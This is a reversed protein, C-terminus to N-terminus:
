KGKIIQKIDQIANEIIDKMSRFLRVDPYGISDENWDGDKFNYNKTYDRKINSINDLDPEVCIKLEVTDGDQMKCNNLFTNATVMSGEPPIRYSDECIYINKYFLKFAVKGPMFSLNYFILSNGNGRRVFFTEIFPLTQARNLDNAAKAQKYIFYATILLVVASITNWDIINLDKFQFLHGFAVFIILVVM